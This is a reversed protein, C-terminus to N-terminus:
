LIFRGLDNMILHVLIIGLLIFVLRHVLVEFAVSLPKGRGKELLAYIISGGDLSPIPLINVLAVATSLSAIFYSFVVMGQTFSSISASFIGLPGLLMSFPINGSFLQKFIMMFFYLLHIIALSADKVAGIFSSAVTIEQKAMYNPVIGLSALLSKDKVNLPVNSLDIVRNAIVKTQPHILQVKVDKHGWGIILEKGVDQWSPTAQDAVSLFLASPFFGAKAAVSNPQILQIQPEKYHIGLYFVLIFAVWATVLNAFAGALLIVIRIWIPQTDFCHQTNKIESNIRTNALQVYGGLPWLAWVWVTGSKSQWQVLPKGFGISIKQITVKFYSAVLAHGAEHIGVVLVLTLLVSFFAMFM